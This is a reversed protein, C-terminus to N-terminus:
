LNPSCVLSKQQWVKHLRILQFCDLKEKWRDEQIVLKHNYSSLYLYTWITTWSSLAWELFEKCLYTVYLCGNFMLSDGCQIPGTVIQNHLKIGRNKTLLGWVSDIMKTLHIKSFSLSQNKKKKSQSIYFIHHHFHARLMCASAELCFRYCSFCFVVCSHAFALTAGSSHWIAPRM